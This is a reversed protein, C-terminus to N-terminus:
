KLIFAKKFISKQGKLNFHEFYVIYISSPPKRGADDLGDWTIMGSIGCLYSQKLHRVPSGNQNFIIVAAVNGPEQFQYHINLFDDKGDNDPSVVKPSVTIAGTIIGDQFSQSNKGGPTAYGVTASASHWNSPEQSAANPNVRELSVGEVDDLLKFHWDSKYKLEDILAGNQNLLVVDGEDDNFSPMADVQMMLAKEPVLYQTRIIYANETVVVIDGPYCLYPNTSLPQIDSISGFDDRHAIHVDQLDIVKNSKNVLEVFDVGNSKPNFLVENIVLENSIESAPVGVLVMRYVGIENHLCDLIGSVVVEYIKATDLSQDLLLLAKDM